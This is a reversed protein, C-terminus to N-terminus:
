ATEKRRYKVHVWQDPYSSSDTRRDFEWDGEPFDDPLTITRPKGPREPWPHLTDGVPVGEPNVWQRWVVGEEDSIAVAGRTTWWVEYDELNDITVPTILDLLKEVRALVLHSSEGDGNPKMADRFAKVFDEDNM